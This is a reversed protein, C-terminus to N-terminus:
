SATPPPSTPRPAASGKPSSSRNGTAHRSHRPQPAPRPCASTSSSTPASRSSTREFVVTNVAGLARADPSLDDLHEIVAKKYPHTINLGSLGSKRAETVLSRLEPEPLTDTDILTYSYELGLAQGETEHLAPSFSLQIGSGILGARFAPKSGLIRTTM